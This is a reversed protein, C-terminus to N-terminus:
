QDAREDGALTGIGFDAMEFQMPGRGNIRVALGTYGKGCLHALAARSVPQGSSSVLTWRRNRPHYADAIVPTGTLGHTKLYAEFRTSM